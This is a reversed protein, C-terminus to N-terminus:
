QGRRAVPKDGRARGPSRGDLGQDGREQVIRVTKEQWGVRWALWCLCRKFVRM